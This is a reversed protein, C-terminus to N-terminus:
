HLSVEVWEDGGQYCQSEVELSHFASQFGPVFTEMRFAPVADDSDADSDAGKWWQGPHILGEASSATSPRPPLDAMSM